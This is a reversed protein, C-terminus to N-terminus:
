EPRIADMRDAAAEMYGQLQSLMDEESLQGVAYPLVVSTFNMGYEFDLMSDDEQFTSPGYQVTEAFGMEAPIPHPDAGIVNPITSPTENVVMAINEPTTSYMLWDAAQNTTNNNLATSTLSFQFSGYGSAVNTMPVGEPVLGSTVPTVGPFYHWDLEFEREPDNLFRDLMWVGVVVMASEGGLFMRYAAEWEMGLAGEQWFQAMDKITRLRAVQEDMTASYTGAYIADTMEWKDPWGNGDKDYDPIHNWFFYKSLWGSVWTLEHMAPEGGGVWAFAPKGTTEQLQQSIEMWEAWTTPEASVGAQDYMDKNYYVGVATQDGLLMYLNGDPARWFDVSPYFGDHWVKSAPHDSPAYPSPLELWPDLALWWGKGLDENVWDPQAWSIDPATGGTLMTVAAERRNGMPIPQFEIEVEPHEEMYANAVVDFAVRETAGEQLQQGTYKAPTFNGADFKVVVREVGPASGEGQPAMGPAACAALALGAASTGMLKLVQRRSLAQRSFSM